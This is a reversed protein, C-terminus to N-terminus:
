SMMAEFYIQNDCSEIIVLVSEEVQQAYIKSWASDKPWNNILYTLKFIWYKPM